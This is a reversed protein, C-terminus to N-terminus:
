RTRAFREVAALLEDMKEDAEAGGRRGCRPRLPERSGRPAERRGRRAGARRRRDPDARRHLVGRASWAASGAVQGEIRALRRLMAEKDELYGPPPRGDYESYIRPPPIVMPQKGCPSRARPRDNNADAGDHLCAEGVKAEVRGALHALHVLDVAVQQHDGRVPDGGVVHDHGVGDGVLPPDQVLHGHEPEVAGRSRHGFWKMESSTGSSTAPPRDADPAEVHVRDFAHHASVQGARSPALVALRARHAPDLERGPQPLGVAKGLRDERRRGLGLDALVVLVDVEIPGGLDDAVPRQHLLQPPRSRARRARRRGRRPRPIM